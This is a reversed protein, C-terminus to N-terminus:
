KLHYSFNKMRFSNLIWSYSQFAITHNTEHYNKILLYFIKFLAIYIKVNENRTIWYHYSINEYNWFTNAM